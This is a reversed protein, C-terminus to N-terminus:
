FTPSLFDAPIEGNISTVPTYILRWLEHMKDPPRKFYTLGAARLTNDLPPDSIIYRWELPIRYFGYEDPTLTETREGGPLQLTILKTQPVIHGLTIM